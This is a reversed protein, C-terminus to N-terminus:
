QVSLGDFVQKTETCLRWGDMLFAVKRICGGIIIISRRLEEKM